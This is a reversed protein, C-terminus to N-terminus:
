IFVALSKVNVLWTFKYGIGVFSILFFSSGIVATVLLAIMTTGKSNTTAFFQTSQKINGLPCLVTTASYMSANCASIIAT